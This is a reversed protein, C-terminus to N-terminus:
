SVSVPPVMTAVMEFYIKYSEGYFANFEGAISQIIGAYKANKIIGGVSNEQLKNEKVFKSLDLFEYVKFGIRRQLDSLRKILGMRDSKNYLVNLESEYSKLEEKLKKISDLLYEYWKYVSSRPHKIAYNKLGSTNIKEEIMRIFSNENVTIGKKDATLKYSVFDSTEELGKCVEELFKLIVKEVHKSHAKGAFSYRAVKLMNERFNQGCRVLKGRNAPSLKLKLSLKEIDNEIGDLFKKFDEESKYKYNEIKESLKKCEKAAGSNGQKNAKNTMDEVSVQLNGQSKKAQQALKSDVKVKNSKSGHKFLKEFLNPM